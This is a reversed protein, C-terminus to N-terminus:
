GVCGWVVVVGTGGLTLEECQRALQAVGDDPVAQGAGVRLADECVPLRTWREICDEAGRLAHGDRWCSVSAQVEDVPLQVVLHAFFAHCKGRLSQRVPM